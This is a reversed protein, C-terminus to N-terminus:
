IVPRRSSELWSEVDRSKSYIADMLTVQHNREETNGHDICLADVWIEFLADSKRIHTLAAVLNPRIQIEHNTIYVKGMAM